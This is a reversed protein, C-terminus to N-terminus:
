CLSSLHSAFLILRLSRHSLLHPSCQTTDHPTHSTCHCDDYKLYDVQWAAYTLADIVEYGLSGPRGACTKHGADSYVGFKLGLGHVAEALHFMGSPFQAADPITRNQADRSAAWCDDINLYEYGHQHLGSSVMAAGMERITSESINCHFYNRDGGALVDGCGWGVAVAFFAFTLDLEM